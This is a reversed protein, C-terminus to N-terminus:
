DHLMCVVKKWDEVSLEQARVRDNNMVTMLVERVKEEPIHLTNVLNRVLQKRKSSFGARVIQFFQEDEPTNKKIDTLSIVASDVKPAPWFSGAKVKTVIRPTSYYQVSVSLVSMDGKKACMREAVEKQVMIVICKPKNDLELMTRLVHSTIQYPLNAVLKYSADKEIYKPLTTLANGWIVKLNKHNKEHEDWYAQLKKEIEFALVHQASDLLAFTLVGFGPGIEVIMDDADIEAAAVMKEIPASKILYNQGYQKSPTLRYKACLEKLYVPQYIQENM